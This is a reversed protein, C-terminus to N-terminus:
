WGAEFQVLGEKMAEAFGDLQELKQEELQRNAYRDMFAGLSIMSVLAVAVLAFVFKTRIDM